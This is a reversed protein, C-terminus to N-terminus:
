KGYPLAGSAPKLQSYKKYIHRRIAVVNFMGRGCALAEVLRGGLKLRCCSCRFKNINEDYLSLMSFVFAAIIAVTAAVSNVALTLPRAQAPPVDYQAEESCLLPLYIDGIDTIM